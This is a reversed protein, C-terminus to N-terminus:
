IIDPGVGAGDYSLLDIIAKDRRHWSAWSLPTDKNADRITPDAGKDLLLKIIEPTGYAAARHLPTESRVRADRWLMYTLKGGLTRKNPDAGADLLAKVQEFNDGCVAHHLATEGNHHGAINPDAGGDLLVKLCETNFGAIGVLVPLINENRQIDPNAGKELLYKLVDPHFSLLTGMGNPDVSNPDAGAEVLLKVKDLEGQNAAWVLDYNDRPNGEFNLLKIVDGPALYRIAWDFPTDGLDNKLTKDAGADLLQQILVVDHSAAAMHLPTERNNRWPKAGGWKENGGLSRENVDVGAEILVRVTERYQEPWLNSNSDERAAFHRMSPRGCCADQLTRPKPKMGRKFWFEMAEWKGLYAMLGIDPQPDDCHDLLYEAVNPEAIMFAGRIREENAGAEVLLKAIELHGTRAVHDLAEQHHGETNLSGDRKRGMIKTNAYEPHEKLLRAVESADRTEIAKQWQNIPKTLDVDDYTYKKSPGDRWPRESTKM